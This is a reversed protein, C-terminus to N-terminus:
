PVPCSTPFRTPVFVLVANAVDKVVSFLLQRTKEVCDEAAGIEALEAQRSALYRADVAGCGELCSLLHRLCLEAHEREHAHRYFCEVNRCVDQPHIKEEFLCWDDSIPVLSVSHSRVPLVTQGSAAGEAPGKGKKDIAVLPAVRAVFAEMEKTSLADVLARAITGGGRAYRCQYWLPFPILQVAPSSTHAASLGTTARAGVRIPVLPKTSDCPLVVATEHEQRLHRKASTLSEHLVSLAKEAEELKKKAEARSTKPRGSSHSEMGRCKM